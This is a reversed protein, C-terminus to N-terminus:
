MSRSRIKGLIKTCVTRNGILRRLINGCLDIRQLICWRVSSLCVVSPRSMGYPSHLTYREGSVTYFGIYASNSSKNQKFLAHNLNTRRLIILM